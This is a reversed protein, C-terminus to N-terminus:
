LCILKNQMTGTTYDESSVIDFNIDVGSILDEALKNLQTTLIKSVSQRAM